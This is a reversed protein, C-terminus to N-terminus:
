GPVYKSTIVVYLITIISIKFQSLNLLNMEKEYTSEKRHINIMKAKFHFYKSTVLQIVLKTQKDLM